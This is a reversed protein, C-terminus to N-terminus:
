GTVGEGRSVVGGNDFGVIGLDFREEECVDRAGAADDNEVVGEPRSCRTGGSCRYGSDM